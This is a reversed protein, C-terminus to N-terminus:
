GYIVVERGTSLLLLERGHFGNTRCLLEYHYDANEGTSKYETIAIELPTRPRDLVIRKEIRLDFIANLLYKAVAANLTTIAEGSSARSIFQKEIPRGRTAKALRDLSAQSDSTFRQYRTLVSLAERRTEPMEAIITTAMAATITNLFLQGSLATNITSAANMNRSLRQDDPFNNIIRQGLNALLANRLVVSGLMLNPAEILAIIREAIAIVSNSVGIGLDIGVHKHNNEKRYMGTEINKNVSM